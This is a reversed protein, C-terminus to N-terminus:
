LIVMLSLLRKDLPRTKVEAQCNKIYETLTRSIRQVQRVHRAFKSFTRCLTKIKGSLIDLSLLDLVISNKAEYMCENRFHSEWGHFHMNKFHIGGQCPQWFLLLM